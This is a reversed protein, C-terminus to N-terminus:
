SHAATVQAVPLPFWADVVFGGEGAPGADLRGGLTAVREGMGVLGKGNVVGPRMGRGDDAVTARLGQASYALTVTVRGADAHKLCNTMAEQVVRYVSLELGPPLPQRPGTIILEVTLGTARVREVLTPLGALCPVPERPLRLQSGDADEDDERLAGILQRLENLSRRGTEGIEAAAERARQPDIEVLREAVGAQVVMVSMAHGIVDHMERTIQLREDAAARAARERAIVVDADFREQRIRVGSGLVGAGIFVVVTVMAGGRSLDVPRMLLGVAVGATVVGVAVRAQQGRTVAVATYFAVALGITSAGVTNRTAVLLLLGALTLVLVPLPYRRRLVLPGVALATLLVSWISPPRNQPVAETGGLHVAVAVVLCALGLGADRLAQAHTPRETYRM